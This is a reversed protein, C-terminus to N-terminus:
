GGVLDIAVEIGEVHLERVDGDDGGAREDDRGLVRGSATTEEGREGVCTRM